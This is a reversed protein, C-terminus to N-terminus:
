VQERLSRIREINQSITDDNPVLEKSRTYLELARELNGASEARQAATSIIEIARMLAGAKTHHHAILMVYRDNFDEAEWYEAITRHMKQRQYRSLSEYMTDQTVGHRFTYTGDAHRELIQTQVLQHLDRQLNEHHERGNLRKMMELTFPMDLVAAMKLIDQQEASLRDVRSVILERVSDPLSDPDVDEALEVFGQNNVVQNNIRLDDVISEIYFPRGSTRSWIFAEVNEGLESAKLLKMALVRAEDEPLDTLAMQPLDKPMADFNPETTGVIVLPAETITRVVREMIELTYPDMDHIDDIILMTPQQATYAQLFAIIADDLRTKKAVDEWIRNNGSRVREINDLNIGEPPTIHQNVLRFLGTPPSFEKTETDNLKKAPTTSLGAIDFISKKPKEETVPQRLEETARKTAGTGAALGGFYSLMLDTLVARSGMLELRELEVDFKERRAEPTELREIDMLQAFLKAWNARADNQIQVETWAVKFGYTDVATIALQQATRTKGVGADGTLAVVGRINQQAARKLMGGL